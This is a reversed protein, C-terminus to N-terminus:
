KSRQVCCTDHYVFSLFCFLTTYRLFLYKRIWGIEQTQQKYSVTTEGSWM